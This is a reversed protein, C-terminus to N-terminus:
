FMIDLDKSLLICKGGYVPYVLVKSLFM